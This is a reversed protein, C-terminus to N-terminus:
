PAQGDYRYSAQGTVSRLRHGYDFEHVVGNKNSLNGQVDYGLGIVTPGGVGNKPIAASM